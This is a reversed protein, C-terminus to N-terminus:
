HLSQTSIHEHPEQSKEHDEEPQVPSYQLSVKLYVVTFEM